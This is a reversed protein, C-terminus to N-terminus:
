TKWIWWNVKESGQSGGSCSMGGRAGVRSDRSFRAISDRTVDRVDENGVKTNSADAVALFRCNGKRVLEQRTRGIKWTKGSGLSEVVRICDAVSPSGTSTESTFSSFGCHGARKFLQSSSDSESVAARPDIPAAEAADNVPMSSVTAALTVAMATFLSTVKM